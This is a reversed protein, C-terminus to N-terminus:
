SKCHCVRDIIENETRDPSGICGGLSHAVFRHWIKASLTVLCMEAVRM